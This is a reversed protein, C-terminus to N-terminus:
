FHSTLATECEQSTKVPGAGINQLCIQLHSSLPICHISRLLIHPGIQHLLLLWMLDLLIRPLVVHGELNVESKFPIASKDMTSHYVHFILMHRAMDAAICEDLPKLLSTRLLVYSGRKLRVSPFFGILVLSHAKRRIM